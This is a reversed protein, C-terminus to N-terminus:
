DTDDEDRVKLYCRARILLLITKPIDRMAKSTGFTLINGYYPDEGVKMMMEVQMM